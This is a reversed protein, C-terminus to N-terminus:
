LASVWRCIRSGQCRHARAILISGLRTPSSPLSLLPLAGTMMQVLRPGVNYKRSIERVNVFRDGVNPSEHSSGVVNVDLLSGSEDCRVVTGVRGDPMLVDTGVIERLLRATDLSPRPPSTVPRATTALLESPYSSTAAAYLPRHGDSGAPWPAYGVCRKVRLLSSMREPLVLGYRSLLAERHRSMETHFALPDPQVGTKGNARYVNKDDCVETVVARVVQQFGITVVQGVLSRIDEAAFPVTSCSLILRRRMDGKPPMATLEMAHKMPGHSRLSVMNHHSVLEAGDTLRPRFPMQKVNDETSPVVVPSHGHRSVITPGVRCVAAHEETHPVSEYAAELVETPIFRLPVIFDGRMRLEDSGVTPMHPALPSSPDTLLSRYAEPLLDASQCPLVFLLQQIANYPRSDSPFPPSSSAAAMTGLLDSPFPSTHHPYCWRWSPCGIYYYAMVWHLAAVYDKALSPVDSVKWESYHAAKLTELNFDKYSGQVPMSFQVLRSRQFTSLEDRCVTAELLRGVAAMDIVHGDCLFQRAPINVAKYVDFVRTLVDDRIALTPLCPIFDNGILMCMLVFDDIARELDLPNPVGFLDLALCERLATVHMMSNRQTKTETDNKTVDVCRFLIFHPEHSALALMVLDADLGYMFHVEHPAFDGREKGRRLFQMIKHEGEGPVDHGSYVVDVTAWWPDSAVRDAIFAQLLTSLEAMFVTGPSICSSNFVDVDDLLARGTGKAKERAEARESVSRFRRQRQQNMKARPAVGDVALLIRRRPRAIGVLSQIAACVEAAADKVRITRENVPTEHHTCLHILNNMDIYLNDVPPVPDSSHTLLLPYREILWRSFRPIGM